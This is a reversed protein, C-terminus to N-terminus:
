QRQFSAGVLAVTVVHHILMAYFDKRREDFLVHVFGMYVWVSLQLMYVWVLLEPQRQEAPHPIWAGKTDTWLRPWPISEDEYFFILYAEVATFLVHVVFQWSQLILRGWGAEEAFLLHSIWYIFSVLSALCKCYDANGHKALFPGRGRVQRHRVRDKPAAAGAELSTVCSWKSVVLQYSFSVGARAVEENAHPFGIAPQTATLLHGNRCTEIDM